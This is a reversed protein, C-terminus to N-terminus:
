IGFAGGPELPRNVLNAIFSNSVLNLLDNTSPSNVFVVCEMDFPLFVLASQETQGQNNSDSGNKPYLKGAPSTQPGHQWDIGYDADLMAQAAAPSMITGARRFAGMVTLLDAVSLHWGTPGAYESMDGSNWGALTTPPVADALACQAPRPLTGTVGAPTFVNDRVYQEYFAITRQDWIDDDVELQTLQHVPPAATGPSSGAAPGSGAPLPPREYGYTTEIAGSVTAMLVRCLAFNLNLYTYTNAIASADPAGFAVVERAAVYTQQSLSDSTFSLGSTMRMLDAFTIQDVNPGPDWYAPLYPRISDTASVGTDQLIKTLAIATLLKSCSAIQMIMGTTWPLSTVPHLATSELPGDIINGTFSSQLPEGHQRLEACYGNTGELGNEVAAIFGNVDLAWVM